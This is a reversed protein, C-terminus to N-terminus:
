VIIRSLKIIPYVHRKIKQHFIKIMYNNTSYKHYFINLPMRPFKEYYYYYCANIKIMSGDVKRSIVKKINQMEPPLRVTM